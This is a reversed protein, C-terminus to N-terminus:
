LEGSGVYGVVVVLTVVGFGHPWPKIHEVVGSNQMFWVCTQSKVGFQGSPESSNLQPGHSKSFPLCIIQM